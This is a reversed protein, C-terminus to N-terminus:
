DHSGFIDLSWVAIRHFFTGVAAPSRGPLAAETLANGGLMLKVEAWAQSREAHGGMRYSGLDEPGRWELSM